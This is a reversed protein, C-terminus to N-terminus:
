KVLGQEQAALIAQSRNTVGLKQFISYNHKKVTNLTVFLKKAIAQNSFGQCILQLVERERESLADVEPRKIRGQQDALSATAPAPAPFAALLQRIYAALDGADPEMEALMRRLPEGEEVFVRVYWGPKALELASHLAALAGPQDGTKQRALSEVVRLQIGWHAWGRGDMARGQRELWGLLGALDANAARGAEALVRRALALSLSWEVKPPGPQFEVLALDQAQQRANDLFEPNVQSFALWLQIRRARALGAGFQSIKECQELHAM